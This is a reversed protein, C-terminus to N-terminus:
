EIGMHNATLQNRVKDQPSAPIIIRRGKISIGDIQVETTLASIHEHGLIEERIEKATMFTQYM